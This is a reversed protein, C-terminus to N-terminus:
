FMPRILGRFIGQIEIKTPALRLTEYRENAPRLEINSGARYYNKLVARKKEVIAVILDGDRVFTRKEILAIDGEVINKNSMSDNPVRFAFIKEPEYIGLMFLPVFLPESEFDERFSTKDPLELWNIKCVSDLASNTGHVELSFSGDERRRTLLGQSELAAIHKGIGAKSRVGLHWAIQQYSPEYGHTEIYRTIFELVQKQRKTRTPM